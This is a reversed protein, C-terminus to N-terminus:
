LEIGLQELEEEAQRAWGRNAKPSAPSPHLVRGIVGDYDHDKLAARVRREAYNGIGVVWDPRYYDVMGRLARDCPPLVQQREAKRLRPPTRNKGGEDLVLLPCYNHVMFREFFKEAAGFRDRAWGWLRSGSVENRDCEFGEVPRKPHVNEPEGVEAEIGMWDRVLEVAGFPVGVQAMGWPGPNMGVMLVQRPRDTGFRRLYEEYPKWAYELPQYAHTIPADFETGRLEEVLQKSIEFPDTPEPMVTEQFLM